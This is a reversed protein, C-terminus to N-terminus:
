CSENVQLLLIVQVTIFFATLRLSTENVREKNRLLWRNVEERYKSLSASLVLVVIVAAVLGFWWDSSQGCPWCTLTADRLFFGTDCM